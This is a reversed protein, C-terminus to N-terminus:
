KKQQGCVGAAQRQKRGTLPQEMGVWGDRGAVVHGGGSTAVQLQEKGAGGGEDILAYKSPHVAGADCWALLIWSTQNAPGARSGPQASEIDGEPCLQASVRPPLM